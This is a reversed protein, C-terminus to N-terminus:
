ESKTECTTPYDLYPLLDAGHHGTPLPLTGHGSLDDGPHLIASLQPSLPKPSNPQLYLSSASVDFTAVQKM